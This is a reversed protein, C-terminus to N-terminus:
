DTKPPIYRGRLHSTPGYGDIREAGRIVIESGGEDDEDEELSISVQSQNLKYWAGGAADVIPALLGIPFTVLAVVGDIIVWKTDVENSITYTRSDYGDKTVKITHSEKASLTVTAPTEGKPEGDVTVTAGDPNSNITVSEDTDSFLAACGLASLGLVIVLVVLLRQLTWNSLDM